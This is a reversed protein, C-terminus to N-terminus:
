PLSQSNPRVEARSPFSKEKSEKVTLTPKLAGGSNRVVCFKYSKGYIYILDKEFKVSLIYKKRFRVKKQDNQYIVDTSFNGGILTDM